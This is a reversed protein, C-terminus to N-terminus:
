RLSTRGDYGCDCSCVYECVVMNQQISPVAGKHISSLIKSTLFVALPEITRIHQNVSTNIKSKFKLSINGFLPM